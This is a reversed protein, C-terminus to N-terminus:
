RVRLCNLVAKLLWTRLLMKRMHMLTSKTHKNEQQDVEAVIRGMESNLNFFPTGMRQDRFLTEMLIDTTALTRGGQGPASINGAYMRQSFELVAEFVMNGTADQNGFIDIKGGTEAKITQAINYAQLLNDVKALNPRRSKTDKFFDVIIDRQYGDLSSMFDSNESYYKLTM